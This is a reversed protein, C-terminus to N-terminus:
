SLQFTSRPVGKVQPLDFALSYRWKLRGSFRTKIVVCTAPSKHHYGNSFWGLMATSDGRYVATEVGQPLALRLTRGQREATVLGGVVSVRCEPHFHFGAAAEHEGASDLDDEIDLVGRSKDLWYGRQVKVPDPLALYGDHHGRLFTVAADDKWDDCVAQAQRGWLFAGLLESQNTDDICVTNHARTHRFGNRWGPQTYYDFTGPDVLILLGGLRVTLALADAHGHAAISGLGLPACDVHVSIRDDGAGSQLLFHGTERFARSAIPRATDVPTSLSSPDVVVRGRLWYGAESVGAAADAFLVDALHSVAAVDHSGDGFDLVYGDDKDGYFPLETGGEAFARLYGYGARLRDVYPAPLPQGTKQAILWTLTFFQLSFFQYGIAQESTGGDAHFQKFIEDALIALAEDRIAAADPLHPLWSAAVFAGAAEGVRHNNASSGRSFKRALDWVHLYLAQHIRAWVDDHCPATRLLDLAFVWNIVRVGLELPNKWNMGYGFPNADLWSSFLDFAKAAYRGDRTQHWARALVYLQHHRNPEWVQKCDGSVHAIRYDVLPCPQRPSALQQNWDRHWDIPDGLHLDTHQFFSLRHACIRDAKGILAQHKAPPLTRCLPAFTFGTKLSELNSPPEVAPFLSLPIRLLDAGERMVGQVRWLIEAAGM